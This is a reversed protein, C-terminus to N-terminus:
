KLGAQKMISKLTGLKIDQSGHNPVPVTGVKTPHKYQVHSGKTRTPIWGDAKLMKDLERFTMVAVGTTLVMIVRIVRITM